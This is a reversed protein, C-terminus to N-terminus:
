ILPLFACYFKCSHYLRKIDVQPYCTSASKIRDDEDGFADARAVMETGLDKLLQALLTDIKDENLSQVKNCYRTPEDDIQYNEGVLIYRCGSEIVDVLPKAYIEEFSSCDDSRNKDMITVFEALGYEEEFIQNCLAVKEEISNVKALDLFMYKM